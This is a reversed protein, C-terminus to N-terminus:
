DPSVQHREHGGRGHAAAPPVPAPSFPSLSFIPMARAQVAERSQPRAFFVCKPPTANPASRSNCCTLPPTLPSYSPATPSFLLTGYPLAPSTPSM